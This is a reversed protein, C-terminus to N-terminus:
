KLEGMYRYQELSEPLFLKGQKSLELSLAKIIHQMSIASNQQAAFFAASVAINKISSGSIEFKRSLFEFDIDKELPAVAPFSSYWLQLRLKQNPLPIHFIFHIRRMFAEDINSLYNTAMLVVGNYQELRQLIYSTEMNAYKDNSSQVDGRKGFLSDMEDFFLICNTKEAQNFIEALNEETEGIYKSSIASLDVRFLKLSLENAIVQALMTKGTGPPGTFLINLGRGYSIRKGLGWDNYVTNKHKVFACAQKIETKLKEELILDEWTFVPDIQQSMNQLQAGSHEFCLSFLQSKTKPHFFELQKSIALMQAPTLDFTALMENIQPSQEIFIKSSVSPKDIDFPSCNIDFRNIAYDTSLM